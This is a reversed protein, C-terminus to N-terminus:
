VWPQNFYFFRFCHPTITNHCDATLHSRRATMEVARNGDSSLDLNTYVEQQSQHIDRFLSDSTVCLTLPHPQELSPPISCFRLLQKLFHPCVKRMLPSMNKYYFLVLSFQRPSWTLPPHGTEGSLKSPTLLYSSHPLYASPINSYHRVM